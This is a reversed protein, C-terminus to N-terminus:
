NWLEMLEDNNLHIGCNSKCEGAIHNNVAAQFATGKIKSYNNLKQQLAKLLDEKSSNILTSNQFILKTDELLDHVLSFLLEDESRNNNDEIPSTTSEIQHRPGSNNKPIKNREWLDYIDRRYFGLIIVFYYLGTIAAIAGFYDSWSIQAM